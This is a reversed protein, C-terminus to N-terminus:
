PCQRLGDERNSNKQRMYEVVMEDLRRSQRLTGEYDLGNLRVVEHLRLRQAELRLWQRCM